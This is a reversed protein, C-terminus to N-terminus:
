QAPAAMKSMWSRRFTARLLLSFARPALSMHRWKPPKLFELLSRPRFGPVRSLSFYRGTPACTAPCRYSLNLSPPALGSRQRWCPHSCAAM